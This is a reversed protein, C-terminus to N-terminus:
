DYNEAIAEILTVLRRRVDQNKIKGYARVMKLSAATDLVLLSDVQRRDEKPQYFFTIPVKLAAALQELHAADIRNVGVEYKQIQQPSVGIMKGLTMLSINLQIRRLRVRSGLAADAQGARPRHKRPAKKM